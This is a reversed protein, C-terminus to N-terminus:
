CEADRLFLMRMTAHVIDLDAKQKDVGLGEFVDEIGVLWVVNMRVQM